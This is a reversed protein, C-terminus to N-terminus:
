PSMPGGVNIKHKLCYAANHVYEPAWYKLGAHSSYKFNCARQNLINAHARHSFDFRRELPQGFL